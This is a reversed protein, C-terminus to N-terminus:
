VQESKNWVLAQEEMVVNGRELIDCLFWLEVINLRTLSVTLIHKPPLHWCPMIQASSANDIAHFGSDIVM